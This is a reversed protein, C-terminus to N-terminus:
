YTVYIDFQFTVFPVLKGYSFLNVGVFTRNFGMNVAGRFPFQVLTPAFSDVLKIATRFVVFTVPFNKRFYATHIDRLGARAQYLRIDQDYTPAIRLGRWRVPFAIIFVCVCFFFQAFEDLLDGWYKLYHYTEKMKLGFSNLLMYIWAQDHGEEGGESFEHFKIVCEMPSVNNLNNAYSHFSHLLTTEERNELLIIATCVKTTLNCPMILEPIWM